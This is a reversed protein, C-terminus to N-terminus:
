DSMKYEFVVIFGSFHFVLKQLMLSRSYNNGIKQEKKPGKKKQAIWQTTSLGLDLDLDSKM